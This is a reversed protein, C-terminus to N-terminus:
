DSTIKGWFRGLILYAYFAVIYLGIIVELSTILSSPLHFFSHTLINLIFHGDLANLVLFLDNQAINFSDTFWNFPTYTKNALNTPIQLQQVLTGNTNTSNVDYYSPFSQQGVNLGVISNVVVFGTNMCLFFVQLTPFSM